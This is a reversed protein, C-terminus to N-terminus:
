NRGIGFGGYDMIERIAATGGIRNKTGREKLELDLFSPIGSIDSIYIRYQDSFKMRHGGSTFGDQIVYANPRDEESSPIERDIRCNKRLFEVVRRKESESLMNWNDLTLGM